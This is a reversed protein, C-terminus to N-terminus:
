NVVRWVKSKPFNESYNGKIQNVTATSSNVNTPLPAGGGVPSTGVVKVKGAQTTIAVGRASFDSAVGSYIFVKGSCFQDNTFTSPDAFDGDNRPAPAIVNCIRFTSTTGSSPSCPDAILTDDDPAFYSYFLVGSLVQPRTIGKSVHNAAPPNVFPIYYGLKSKAYFTASGPIVRADSPVLGTVDLLRSTNIPSANNVGVEVTANDQRDYFVTVQNNTPKQIPDGIQYTDLPNNRDGSSIAIGVAAPSVTPTTNRAAPYETLRFPVALTSITQNTQGQYLKRVTATGAITGDSTWEDLNSSDLRFDKYVSLSDSNKKESGLAWVGGKFDTFYARQVLGSRPFFEFPTLGAAVPGMANASWDVTFGMAQFDWAKLMTGTELEFVFANRGLYTTAGYQQDTDPNSYGGGIFVVNRVVAPSGSGTQIRRTPLSSTSFGMKAVAARNSSVNPLTASEDPRVTWLLAPVAPNSIDLAYYSRGGKRLGFLVYAKESPDLRANGVASGPVPVDKELYVVPTGDVMFRHKNTSTTLYDLNSLFDTPIFSWLEDVVAKTIRTAGVFTEWSVEGFCHFHGQNTGVFLMRFRANANASAASVLTPSSAPILSTNVELASPASNIIDGMITTRTPLTADSTDAGLMFRILKQKDPDTAGPVYGKIATFAAGTDKFPVLGPNPSAVSGPIRTYVNRNAWGLAQLRDSASWQATTKDLTTAANGVKDQVTVGTADTKTSFMFLDGPWIPGSTKPVEFNGLYIENALGFGIFPTSPAAIDNTGALSGIADFANQLGKVISSPDKGDFYFVSNPTAKGTVDVDYPTATTIDYAPNGPDGFTAAALLRYKPSSTDTNIPIPNGAGDYNIGLSVGVTMTQIAHPVTFTTADAGSGRSKIWFPAYNSLDSNGTPYSSPIAIPNLSPKPNAGWAAVGALTPVNWYDGGANLSTLSGKVLANGAAPNTLYPQNVEKPKPDPSENPVGDTFLIIFHKMCQAPKNTGHELTDFPSINQLQALTNAYANTLPTGTDAILKSIRQMGSLSTTKSWLFWSRDGGSTNNDGPVGTVTSIQQTPGAGGNNNDESPDLGRFAWLVKFDNTPIDYQGVWTRIAAEKVAQIRTRSPVGNAHGASTASDPIVYAGTGGAGQIQGNSMGFFIWELYRDRYLPIDDFAGIVASNLGAFTSRDSVFSHGSQPSTYTNDFDVFTGSVPDKSRLPILPSAPGSSPISALGLVTWPLPIDVTRSVAPGGATRTLTVRAHSAAYVWNRADASKNTSGPFNTEDTPISDVIAKTVITGDPRVLTNGSVTYQRGDVTFTTTTGTRPRIYIQQVGTGGASITIRINFESSNSVIEDSVRNPFKPDFMIQNMSGSFDFVTVVEPKVKSTSKQFLDLFDTKSKQLKPDLQARLPMALMALACFLALNSLSRMFRLM